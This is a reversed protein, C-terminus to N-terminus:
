RPPSRLRQHNRELLPEHRRGRRRRGGRGRAGVVLQVRGCLRRRPRRHLLPRHGPPRAARMQEQAPVIDHGDRRGEAMQRRQHQDVQRVVPQVPQVAHEGAQAAEAEKLEAVVLEDRQGLGDTRELGEDREVDRVVLEGAQGIRDGAELRERVDVQRVVADAGQWARDAGECAQLHQAEVGILQHGQRDLECPQAVQVGEACRVVREEAADVDDGALVKRRVGRRRHRRRRGKGHKRIAGGLGGDRGQQVPGRTGGVAGARGRALQGIVQRGLNDAVQGPPLGARVAAAGEEALGHEAVAEQATARVDQGKDVLETPRM